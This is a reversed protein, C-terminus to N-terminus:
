QVVVAVTGALVGAADTTGGACTKKVAATGDLTLAYGAPDTGGACYGAFTATAAPVGAIDRAISCGAALTASIDVLQLRDAADPPLRTPAFPVPETGILDPRTLCLTLAGTGGVQTGHISVSIVGSGPITCDNNISAAFGGYTVTEGGVIVTLGAAPAPGPGCSPGGDDSCASSAGGALAHALALLVVRAAGRGRPVDTSSPSSSPSM